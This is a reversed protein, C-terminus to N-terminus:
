RPLRPINNTVKIIRNSDPNVTIDLQIVNKGEDDHTWVTYLTNNENVNWKKIEPFLAELFSAIVPKQKKYPEIKNPLYPPKFYILRVKEKFIWFIIEGPVEEGKANELSFCFFPTKAWLLSHPSFELMLGANKAIITCILAELNGVEGRANPPPPQTQVMICMAIAILPM